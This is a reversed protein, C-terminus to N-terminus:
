VLVDVCVNLGTCVIVPMVCIMATHAPVAGPAVPKRYM